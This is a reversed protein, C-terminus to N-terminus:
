ELWQKVRRVLDEHTITRGAELDALGEQIGRLYVLWDIFDELTADEPLRSLSDLIQQRTLAGQQLAM